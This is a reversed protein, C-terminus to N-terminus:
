LNLLGPSTAASRWVQGPDPVLRRERLDMLGGVNTIEAALVGDTTRIEQEIRFSKGTGWVFACTVNVEEGATIERHFRIREELSVPGIGESRLRDQALGAARLCEWRAHQGYQLLVTGAVHGNSDTEYGRATVRVTFPDNDTM